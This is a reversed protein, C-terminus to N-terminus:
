TSKADRRAGALAALLEASTFPKCLVIASELGRSSAAVQRELPELRDLRDATAADIMLVIPASGAAGPPLLWGGEDDLSAAALVYDAPADSDEYGGLAASEPGLIPAIRAQYGRDALVDRLVEALLEVEEFILVREQTGSPAEGEKPTTQRFDDAAPMLVFAGRGESPPEYTAGAAVAMVDIRHRPEDVRTPSTSAGDASGTSAATPSSPGGEAPRVAVRVSVRRVVPGPAAPADGPQAEVNAASLVLAGGPPLDRQAELCLALIMQLFGQPDGKLPWLDPPYDTIVPLSPMCGALLRQLEVMLYPAQFVIPEGEVGRAVWMMQRVMELGDRTMVQLSTLLREQGSSTPERLVLDISMLTSALLNSISHTLGSTLAALCEMREAWALKRALDSQDGPEPTPLGQRQEVEAVTHV